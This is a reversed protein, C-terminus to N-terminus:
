NKENDEDYKTMREEIEHEEGLRKNTQEVIALSDMGTKNGELWEIYRKSNHLMEEISEDQSEVEFPKARKKSYSHHNYKLWFIIATLNDAQIFKILKSEALDNVLSKGARLARDAAKSFIHDSKRWRYYTARSVRARECALQVIPTKKLQSILVRKTEETRNAVTESSQKDKKTTISKKNM